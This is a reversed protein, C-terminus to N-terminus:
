TIQLMWFTNAVFFLVQLLSCFKAEQKVKQWFQSVTISKKFM